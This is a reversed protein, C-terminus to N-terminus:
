FMIFKKFIVKFYDLQGIFRIVHSAEHDDTESHNFMESTSSRLVNM